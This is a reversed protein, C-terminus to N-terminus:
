LDELPILDLDPDDFLLSAPTISSPAGAGPKGPTSSDPRSASGPPAAGEAGEGELRFILPGIAVEDGVELRVEEVKRGNVRIGHRSGLDRLIIRDYAIGVCCHRRSIKAHDIRADCDLHRGILIVPRQLSILPSIGANLPVLQFSM